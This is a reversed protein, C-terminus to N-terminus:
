DLYDEVRLFAAETSRVCHRWIDSGFDVETQREGLHALAAQTSSIPNRQLFTTNTITLLHSYKARRKRPM